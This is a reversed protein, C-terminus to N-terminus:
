GQGKAAIHQLLKDMAHTKHRQSRDTIRVKDDGGNRMCKSELLVPLTGEEFVESREQAGLLEQQQQVIKLLHQWRSRQQSIEEHGTGFELDQHGTSRYEMKFAFVHKFHRRKGHRIQLM